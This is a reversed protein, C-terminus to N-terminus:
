VAAMTGHSLLQRRKRGVTESAGSSCVEFRTRRSAEFVIVECELAFAIKQCATSSQDANQIM